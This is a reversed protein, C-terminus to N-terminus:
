EGVRPAGVVGRNAQLRPTGRCDGVQGPLGAAVYSGPELAEDDGDTIAREIRSVLNVDRDTVPAPASRARSSLRKAPSPALQTGEAVRASGLEGGHEHGRGLEIDHATAQVPEDGDRSRRHSPVLRELREHFGLIHPAIRALSELAHHREGGLPSQEVTQWALEREALAREGDRGDTPKPGGAGAGPSADGGRGA